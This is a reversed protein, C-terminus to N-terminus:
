TRRENHKFMLCDDRQNLPEPTNSNVVLFPANIWAVQRKLVVIDSLIPFNITSLGSVQHQNLKCIFFIIESTKTVQRQAVRTEQPPPPSEPEDVDDAVVPLNEAVPM